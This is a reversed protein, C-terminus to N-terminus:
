SILSNPILPTLYMRIIKFLLNYNNNKMLKCSTDEEKKLLEYYNQLTYEHKINAHRTETNFEIVDNEKDHKLIHLSAAYRNLFLLKWVGYLYM